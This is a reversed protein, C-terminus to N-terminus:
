TSSTVSVDEPASPVTAWFARIPRSNYTIDDPVITEGGAHIEISKADNTAFGYILIRGGGLDFTQWWVPGEGPQSGEQFEDLLTDPAGADYIQLSNTAADIEWHLAVGIERGKGAWLVGFVADMSIWQIVPGDPLPQITAPGSCVDQNAVWLRVDHGDVTLHLADNTAVIIPDGCEHVRIELDGTIGADILGWTVSPAPEYPDSPLDIHTPSVPRRPDLDVRQLRTWGGGALSAVEVASFVKGDFPAALLRWRLLDTQGNAVVDVQDPEPEPSTTARPTETPPESTPVVSATADGSLVAGDQGIVILRNEKPQGNAFFFFDFPFDLSPPLDAITAQVVGGDAPHWEVRAAEETVAGFSSGEIPVTPVTFDGYGHESPTGEADFSIEKMDVNTGAPRLEITWTSGDAEKGGAVVYGRTDTVPFRLAPLGDTAATGISDILSSRIGDLIQRDGDTVSPGAASSWVVYRVETMGRTVTLVEYHGPGCMETADGSQGTLMGVMVVVGDGPIGSAQSGDAPCVGRELGPDFNTIQLVPLLEPPSVNKDRLLAGSAPWEDILMWDSPTTSTFGQITATRAFVPRTHTDAPVPQTTRTPSLAQLGAVTAVAAAITCMTAVVGTWAQRRHVKSRLEEPAREVRPARAADEELVDRLQDELDRM